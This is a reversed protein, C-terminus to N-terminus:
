KRYVKNIMEEVKNKAEWESFKEKYFSARVMDRRWTGIQKNNSKLYADILLDVEGDSYVRRSVTSVQKKQNTSIIPVSDNYELFDEKTILPESNFNYFFLYYMFAATCLFFVITVFRSIITSVIRKKTTTKAVTEIRKKEQANLRSASRIKEKQSKVISTEVNDIMKELILKKNNKNPDRILQIYTKYINHTNKISKASVGFALKQLILQEFFFATSKLDADDITGSIIDEQRRSNFVIQWSDEGKELFDSPKASPQIASDSRVGLPEINTDLLNELRREVTKKLNKFPIAQTKENILVFEDEKGFDFTRTEDNLKQYMLKNDVYSVFVLENSKKILGVEKKYSKTLMELMQRIMATNQTTDITM